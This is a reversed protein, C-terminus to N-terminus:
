NQETNTLVHSYIHITLKTTMIMPYKESATNHKEASNSNTSDRGAGEKENPPWDPFVTVVRTNLALFLM